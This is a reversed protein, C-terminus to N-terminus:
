KIVQIINGYDNAVYVGSANVAVGVPGNFPRTISLYGSGALSSVTGDPAIKRVLNNLADAVYVNGAADVAVGSPYYFSAGAASGSANGKAGSGAFTTVVGNIDIKRILNNNADAVYVNSSADVALGRPGNFSAATGTGNASGAKGSGALTTVAGDPAIKRILNNSFDAVYVNGLIDVAVGAPGNFLAKTGVDNTNGSKSGGALTTVTGDAAIKRILNNGFDAVYVSGLADAAVGTPGTFTASVGIASTNSNGSSLTGSLTTVKGSSTIKRIENNGQDAVYVNGAADVAVGNPYNFAAATGTGNASGSLGSGAFTTVTGTTQIATPNATVVNDNKSCSSFILATFSLAILMNNFIYRKMNKM